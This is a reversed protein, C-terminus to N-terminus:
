FGYLSSLVVYLSYFILNVHLEGVVLWSPGSPCYLYLEIREKVEASPM